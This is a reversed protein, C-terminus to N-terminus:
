PNRLEQYAEEVAALGPGTPSEAWRVLEAVQEPVTGHRSVRSAARPIGTVLTAFDAPTLDSMERVLALRAPVGPGEGPVKAKPM